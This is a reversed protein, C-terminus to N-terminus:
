WVILILKVVCISHAREIRMNRYLVLQHLLPTVYFSSNIMIVKNPLEKVGVHSTLIKRKTEKKERRASLWQRRRM